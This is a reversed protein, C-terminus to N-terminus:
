LIRDSIKAFNEKFIRRDEEDKIAEGHQKALAYHRRHLDAEGAVGAALAIGAHAFALDWDECTNNECFNLARRAYVMAADGQSLASHVQSLLMDARAGNLPTGIISWHYAASYAMYLMNRDDQETRDAKEILDWSGNNCEVAFFRHMRAIMEPTPTEAM